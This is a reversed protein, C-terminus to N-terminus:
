GGTLDSLDLGPIGDGYSEFKKARAELGMTALHPRIARRLLKQQVRGAAGRGGDVTPIGEVIQEYEDLIREQFLRYSQSVDTHLHLDM